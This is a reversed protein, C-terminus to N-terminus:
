EICVPCEPAEACTPTKGGWESLDFESEKGIDGWNNESTRYEDIGSNISNSSTISDFSPSSDLLGLDAKLYNPFILFTSFAIITKLSNKM